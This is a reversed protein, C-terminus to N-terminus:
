ILGVKYYCHKDCSPNKARFNFIDQAAFENDGTDRDFGVGDVRAQLIQQYIVDWRAQNNAFRSCLESAFPCQNQRALEVGKIIADVAMIIYPIYPDMASDALSQSGLDCAIRNNRPQGPLYCNFKEQWYENFWPNYKSDGPKLAEYYSKFTRYAQSQANLTLTIAGEAATELGDTVMENIGWKNTGIFTFEGRARRLSVTRLFDRVMGDHAFLVVVEAEKNDRLGQLVADMDATSYNLPVGMNNVVCVGESKAMTQLVKMGSQGYSDETYVVQVHKWDKNKLIGIIAKVQEADSPVTRLLFQYKDPNGLEASTAGHSVLTKRMRDFIPALRMAQQSTDPGVYGYVRGPAVPESGGVTLYCNEFSLLQSVLRDENSCSDFVIGGVKFGPSVDQLRSKFTSLAWFFAELYQIGSEKVKGCEYPSNGTEHVAFLGGIYFYNDRSTSSGNAPLQAVTLKSVGPTPICDQLLVSPVLAIVLLLVHAIM